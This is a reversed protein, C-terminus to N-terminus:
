RRESLAPLYRRRRQKRRGLGRKDARHVGVIRGVDFPLARPAPHREDFRRRKVHAVVRELERRCWLDHARTLARRPSETHEVRIRLSDDRVELHNVFLLVVQEHDTLVHSVELV